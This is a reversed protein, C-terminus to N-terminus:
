HPEWSPGADEQTQPATTRRSDPTPAAHPLEPVTPDNLSKETGAETQEVASALKYAVEDEAFTLADEEAENVCGNQQYLHFLYLSVHLPKKGNHAISKEVLEQVLRGWNVPRAGSLVGFITNAM